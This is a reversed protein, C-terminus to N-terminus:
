GNQADMDFDVEDNPPVVYGPPFVFNVADGEPPNYDPITPKKIMIAFVAM